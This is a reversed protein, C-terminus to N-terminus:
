GIRLCHRALRRFEESSISSTHNKRKYDMFAGITEKLRPDDDRLGTRHLEQVCFVNLVDKMNWKEIEDLVIRRAYLTSPDHISFHINNLPKILLQQSSFVNEFNEVLLADAVQCQSRFKIM